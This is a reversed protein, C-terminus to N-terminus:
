PPTTSGATVGQSSPKGDLRMMYVHSQSSDRGKDQYMFEATLSAHYRAMWESINQCDLSPYNEIVVYHIGQQLLQEPSDTNLVDEVRRAGLPRWLAPELQTNWLGAYGVLPESPPVKEEIQREANRLSNPAMYADHLAAIIKSHPHGAALQRMVAVAPFLPRATNVVLLGASFSICLLTIIQWWQQRVLKEHGAHALLLPFFFIYYTALHRANQAFGVKAMFLVLLFWPCVRLGLQLPSCKIQRAATFTRAAGISILTMFVIALGIGASSESIGPSVHGFFEFSNFHTGFPTAVFDDMAHNWAGRWPFFPPLLNQVLLCFSNGVIGWFPSNLQLRWGPDEAQLASVGSWSGTHMCNFVITPVGSVLLGLSAIVFFTKPNAWAIRRHPWVALLWLGALPIGTQKVGTLLAAALLSFWFDMTRGTRRIRMALVVAALAYIVPLADNVVSASQLVYCWGSALLWTWWWAVRLRLGILKFFCFMLGPLMLYSVWNILFLFRDTRTFLLVPALLWEYGCGAVNMRMDATHIWHWQGQGLWHLMRPFRYSNTDPNYPAYLIGSVLSMLVLVLFLLPAPRKFRRRFKHWAAPPMQLAPWKNKGWWCIAVTGTLAFAVGYGVRNLQHLASLIWGASVLWTSLLIWIRVANLM